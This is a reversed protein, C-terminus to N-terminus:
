SMSLTKHLFATMRAWADDSAAKRYHDPRSFDQFAHGAKEYIHFESKVHNNKLEQELRRVEDLPIIHDEAGYLNLMEARINKALAIPAPMGQGETKFIHGGYLVVAAKFMPTAAVGLFASRGGMCHGVIAIADARVFPQEKLFEATAKIDAVAEVDQMTKRSVEWSESPPRRHYMNPIAVVYGANSLKVAADRTFEDVGERHHCLVIGPRPTEDEQRAVEVPMASGAVDIKVISLM